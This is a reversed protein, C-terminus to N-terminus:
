CGSRATRTWSWASPSSCCRIGSPNRTGRFLHHGFSREICGRRIVQEPTEGRGACLATIYESFVPFRLAVGNEAIYRDVTPAEFLRAWLAETKETEERDGM